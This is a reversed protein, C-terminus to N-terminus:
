DSDAVLRIDQAAGPATFALLQRAEEGIADAEARSLRAFPEITIVAQGKERSTRWNAATLGDVLVTGPLSANRTGSRHRLWPETAIRSRDAHALLVNDYDPLFRVPVPTGPDPRSADALDYLARGREDAFVALGARMKDVVEGLGTLGSWAQMDAVTAPGFGALYRTILQEPTADRRLPQGLWHEAPAHCTRGGRNWLGRPPVQVLAVLNRVAYALASPDRGPWRQALLSGLEAPTRPQETLFVRGADAVQAADIGELNRRFTAVSRLERDLAPQVVPRLALCDGATVLHITSRMLAVRVLKREALLGSAVEPRFGELRSWLGTYWSRPTQAQLGAVQQVAELIPAPSRRLLLQRDLTARGLARRDLVRYEDCSWGAISEGDSM